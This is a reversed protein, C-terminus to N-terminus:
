RKNRRRDFLGWARRWSKRPDPVYPELYFEPESGPVFLDPPLIGNSLKTFHDAIQAMADDISVAMLIGDIKLRFPQRTM